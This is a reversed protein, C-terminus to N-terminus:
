RPDSAQGEVHRRRREVSAIDTRGRTRGSSWWALALGVLVVGLVIWWFM